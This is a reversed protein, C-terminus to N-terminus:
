VPSVSQLCPGAGSRRAIVARAGGSLGAGEDRLRELMDQQDQLRAVARQAANLQEQAKREAEQAAALKAAQAQRDREIPWRVRRGARRGKRGALRAAERYEALKPRPPRARTRRSATAARWNPRAARRDPALRSRREALQTKLTLALTRRRRWCGAQAPRERERGQLDGNPRRSGARAPPTSPRRRPWSRSDRRCAAPQRRRARGRPLRARPRPRRGARAM